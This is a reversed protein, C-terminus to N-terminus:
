YKAKAHRIKRGEEGAGRGEREGERDKKRHSLSLVEKRPKYTILYSTKQQILTIQFCILFHPSSWTTVFGVHFSSRPRGLFIGSEFAVKLSM